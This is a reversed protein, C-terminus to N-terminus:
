LSGLRTVGWPISGEGDQQLRLFIGCPHELDQMKRGNHQPNPTDRTCCSCFLKPLDTQDGEHSQPLRTFAGCGLVGVQMWGQGSEQGLERSVGGLIQETLWSCLLIWAFDRDGDGDLGTRILGLKQAILVHSIM